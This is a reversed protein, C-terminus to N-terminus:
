GREDEPDDGESAAKASEGVADEGAIDVVVGGFWRAALNYLLATLGGALTGVVSFILGSVIALMIVAGGSMKTLMDTEGPPLLAGVGPGAMRFFLVQLIGLVVGGLLGLVFGVRMATAPYIHRIEHM